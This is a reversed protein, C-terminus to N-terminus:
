IIYPIILLFIECNKITKVNSNIVHLIILPHLIFMQYFIIFFILIIILSIIFSFLGYFFLLLLIFLHIQNM